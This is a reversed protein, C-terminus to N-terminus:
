CTYRLTNSYQLHWKVRELWMRPDIKNELYIRDLLHEQLFLSDEQFKYGEHQIPLSDEKDQQVYICYVLAVKIRLNHCQGNSGKM